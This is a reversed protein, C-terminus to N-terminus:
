SNTKRISTKLQRSVNYIHNIMQRNQNNNSIMNLSSSSQDFKLPTIVGGGGRNLSISQIMMKQDSFVNRNNKSQLGANNIIQKSRSTHIHGHKKNSTIMM